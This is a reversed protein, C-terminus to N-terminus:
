RPNHQSSQVWGSTLRINQSYSLPTSLLQTINCFFIHSQKCQWGHGKSVRGRIKSQMQVQNGSKSEPRNARSATVLLIHCFHCHAWSLSTRLRARLHSQVIGSTRSADRDCSYARSLRNFASLVWKMHFHYFDNWNDWGFGCSYSIWGPDALAGIISSLYMLSCLLVLLVVWSLGIWGSLM